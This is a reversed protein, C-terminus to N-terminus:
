KKVRRHKHNLVFIVLSSRTFGSKRYKIYLSCRTPLHLLNKHSVITNMMENLIMARENFIFRSTQLHFLNYSEICRVLIDNFRHIFM